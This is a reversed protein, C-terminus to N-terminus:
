FHEAVWPPSGAFLQDCRRIDASDGSVLGYQALKSASRFGTFLQAFATPQLSVAGGLAGAAEGVEAKGARIDIELPPAEGIRLALRAADVHYGRQRLAAAPDLVRLLWEEQHALRWDKDPMAAVLDDQPAGHWRVAPYVSRFRALFSLLGLAAEPSAAFWDRVELRKENGMDLILYAAEGEALYAALADTPARRLENWHATGRVLLGSERLTKEAYAGALRQDDLEVREFGLRSASPLAATDAEYVIEHGALEFGAKRYVPRTSAFLTAIAAGNSKAEDCLADVFPVALGQGRREPAIAVHVINAAQVPKGHFIHATQLLGACVVPRGDEGRILRLTELGINSIYEHSRAKRFGFAWSLLSAIDVVDKTTAQDTTFNKKM